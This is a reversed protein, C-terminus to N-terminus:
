RVKDEDEFFGDDQEDMSVSGSPFISILGPAVALESRMRKVEKDNESIDVTIGRKTDTGFRDFIAVLLYDIVQRMDGNEGSSVASGSWVLDEEKSSRFFHANYVHLSVGRIFFTYERPVYTTTGSSQTTSSYTSSSRQWGSPNTTNVNGTTTQTQGPSYVPVHVTVTKSTIDSNFVLLYDAMRPSALKYGNEKLLVAIKNKTEKSFMAKNTSASVIAFSSGCPFGHPIFHSDAHSNIVIEYHRSCSCLFISCAIYFLFHIKYRSIKM